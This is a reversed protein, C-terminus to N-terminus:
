ETNETHKKQKEKMLKYLDKNQLQIMLGNIWEKSKLIYADIMEIPQREAYMNVIIIASEIPLYRNLPDEYFNDLGRIIEATKLYQATENYLSNAITTDVSWIKFYDYLRGDLVGNVYAAKVQYEFEPYGETQKSIRLWDYGDWFLKNEQGTLSVTLLLFCLSIKELIKLM